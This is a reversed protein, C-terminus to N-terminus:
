AYAVGGNKTLEGMGLTYTTLFVGVATGFGVSSSTAGYAKQADQVVRGVSMSTITDTREQPLDVGDVFPRITLYHSTLAASIAAKCASEKDADVVLDRVETFIATRNISRLFLTADTIGLPARSEGTDPDYNIDQRVDDLLAQPAYGDADIDTTAEIYVQRDGPYSTGEDVPRGSYPFAQAVGTVAEAWIKHDTANAGGTVARMAFLVRPRYDSDTEVDVGLTDVVTVTAITEAGAIQSSIQFTDSVDLNGLSGSSVCKLSLTAVGAVATVNAVPRYRLGNADSIFDTTAPIITGTTANLTATLIAAQSQKRITSYEQGLLDLDPGIAAIALNSKARDAAVKYLGLDQAAETAALIRLFAKDHTPSIQGLAAELRSLHAAYLEALTPIVYSM